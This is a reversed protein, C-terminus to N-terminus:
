ALNIMLVVNAKCTYQGDFALGTKATLALNGTAGSALTGFKVATHDAAWDTSTVYGSNWGTPDSIQVGLAIYQKSDASDLALWNKDNPGVDTFTLDGGSASAISQVYVNVPVRTDNKVTIPAATISGTNPDITYDLIIQHTVSIQLPLITGNITVSGNAAGTGTDTTSDAFATMSFTLALAAVIACALIKKVAKLTRM